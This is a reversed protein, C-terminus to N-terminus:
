GKRPTAPAEIRNRYIEQEHRFAPYRALALSLAALLLVTAFIRVGGKGFIVSFLASLAALTLFLMAGSPSMMMAGVAALAAALWTLTRATAPKILKM